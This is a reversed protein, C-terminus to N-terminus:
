RVIYYSKNYWLDKSIDFKHEIKKLFISSLRNIKYPFIELWLFKDFLKLIM